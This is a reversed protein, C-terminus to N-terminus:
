RDKSLTRNRDDVKLRELPSHAMVGANNLIVDIRGYSRVATDVLAKVQEFVTVDTAVALAKGGRANIESALAQLRDVRRARLAVIAGEASLLRTTAEVLGSSSGTIAVVKGTVNNHMPM